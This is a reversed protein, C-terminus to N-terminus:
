RACPRRAAGCRRARRRGPSRPRTRHADVQRAADDLDRAALHGQPALLEVQERGEGAAVAGDDGPGVQEVVDPAEGGVVRPPLLAQVRELDVDGRQAALEVGGARDDRDPPDAVPQGRPLRGAGSGATPRDPLRVTFVTGRGDEGAGVEVSGGRRDVVRRVLALGLGGGRRRGAQHVLGAHVGGGPRRPGARRRRGPRRGSRGRRAPRAGRRRRGRGDHASELAADLANDLLNGVVTVRDTSAQEDGTDAADLATGEGIRLALGRDRADTAKDLVLAALAPDALRDRLDGDGAGDGADLLDRTWRQALDRADDQAGLEILTSVAQLHNAHEHAAFRLARTVSRADDLERTMAELETRDRLTVVLDPAPAPWRRATSWCCGSASSCRRTPSPPATPSGSACPPTSASSTSRRDRRGRSPALTAPLGLLRAAEANLVVVRGSDADLVLLGERMAAMVAEHHRHLATIEHPELGLTDRKVRRAALWALGVGLAIAVAAALALVALERAIRDAVQVRLQGAAVMGVVTGDAGLVPVIARM